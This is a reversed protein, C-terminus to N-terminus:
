IAWGDYQHSYLYSMENSQSTLRIQPFGATSSLKSLQGQLGAENILKEQLWTESFSLMAIIKNNTTLKTVNTKINTVFKM